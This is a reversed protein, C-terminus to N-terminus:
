RLVPDFKIRRGVILAFLFMVSFVGSAILPLTASSGHPLSWHILGSVLALILLGLASKSM